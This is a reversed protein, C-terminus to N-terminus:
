SGSSSVRADERKKDVLVTSTTRVPYQLIESAKLCLDCLQGGRSCQCAARYSRLLEVAEYNQDCIPFVKGGPYHSRQFSKAEGVHVFQAMAQGHSNVVFLFKADM